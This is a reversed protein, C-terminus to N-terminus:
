KEVASNILWIFGAGVAGIAIIVGALGVIFNKSFLVASYAETLPNLRENAEKQANRIETIDETLKRQFGEDSKIHNTTVQMLEALKLTLDDFKDEATM